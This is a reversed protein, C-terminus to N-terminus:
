SARVHCLYIRSHPVPHSIRAESEPLFRGGVSVVEVYLVASPLGVEGAMSLWHKNLEKVAM